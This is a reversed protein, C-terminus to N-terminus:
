LLLGEAELKKVTALIDDRPTDDLVFQCRILKKAGAAPNIRRYLADVIRDM